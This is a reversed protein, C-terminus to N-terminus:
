IIDDELDIEDDGINGYLAEDIAESLEFEIRNYEADIIRKLGILTYKNGSSEVTVDGGSLGVLLHASYKGCLISENRTNMDKELSEICKKVSMAEMEGKINTIQENLFTIQDGLMENENDILCTHRLLTEIAEAESFSFMNAKILRELEARARDIDM